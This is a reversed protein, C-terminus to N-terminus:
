PNNSVKRYALSSIDKILSVLSIQKETGALSLFKISYKGIILLGNISLMFDFEISKISDPILEM